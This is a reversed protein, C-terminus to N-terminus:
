PEQLDRLFVRVNVVPEPTLLPDGTAFRLTFGVAQVSLIPAYRLFSYLRNFIILRSQCENM